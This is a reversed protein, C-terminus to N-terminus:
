ANAPVRPINTRIRLEATKDMCEVFFVRDFPGVYETALAEDTIDLAQAANSPEGYILLWLGGIARSYGGVVRAKEDIVTQLESSQVDPNNSFGSVWMDDVRSRRIDMAHVFRIVEDSLDHPDLYAM